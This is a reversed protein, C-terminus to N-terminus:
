GNVVMILSFMNPCELIVYLKKKLFDLWLTAGDHEMIPCVECWKSYHDVVVLVYKNGNSM